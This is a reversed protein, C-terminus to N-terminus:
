HRGGMAAQRERAALKAAKTYHLDNWRNGDFDSGGIFDTKESEPANAPVGWFWPFMHKPREPEVGRDKGWHINPKWRLIGAGKRGGSRLEAMLFPRINTRVGDNIDPEWGIPQEHLPKWRVFIDYPPEGELIKILQGQLDLAAALRADSGELGEHQQQRQRDIWDGLYGYTLAELTQRGNSSALRQYNVLASFGDKRGDWVHWIFPRHHFLRCHQEFFEMLLWAELSKSEGAKQLLERERTLSWSPGFSAALLHRLRNAATDKGRLSDLCVIGGDDEFPALETCSAVLAKTRSSLGDTKGFEAPWRYGLLRCVAVQLPEVSDNPRGHFLWQRPDDSEPDPLGNPYEERAIQRWEEVKFPVGWLASSPAIIKSSIKKVESRYEKSTCYAWIAPLDSEHKPIAAVGNQAHIEGLSLTAKIDSTRAIFVGRRGWADMGRIRASPTQVLDGKGEEWQFFLERGRFPATADPSNLLPVWVSSEIIGLEWFARDFRESDGRGTGEYIHCLDKLTTSEVASHGTVRYEPNRLQDAQRRLVVGASLLAGAKEAPTKEDSVDIISMLHDSPPKIDSLVFLAVNVVKGGITEFAGPGLRALANWSAEQLLSHRLEGYTVLSLWNQPAVLAVAGRTPTLELTRLVFATALDAKGSEYYREIHNKLIDNQKSRVLYPVNTIVLNYQGSLIEAARAMGQAAIAQEFRDADKKETTLAAALHPLLEEFKTGLLGAGAIKPNILSGLIEASAFFDYLREMSALLREDSEVLGTWEPKGTNPSLGSCAINLRPLEIPSGARKWAALALNFAAIQTCRPDIELGFLNESLVARMAEELSLGEEEMRLATLLQFAEVLFYGSGCCPDLVRLDKARKPWTPFTGSAPQWPSFSVGDPNLERVFRLYDFTYGGNTELRLARRLEEETRASGSLASVVKGARWAGITNHMLFQVMYNETFLQTVAPLQDADIAIGDSNVEMKKEAQWFQYTWGLADDSTFVNQSLSELLRELAVRTEMPLEIALSPNGQRFIEPLMREAFRAALVWPDEGKERALDRCEDFSIAVSSIPELLLHNEALFRAFLMRHWHEYAIEHVLRKTSQAGKADLVDGLQRAHSRLRVRLQRQAQSRLAAAEPRGVALAELARSAGKEAERRADLITKALQNRTEPDLTAM